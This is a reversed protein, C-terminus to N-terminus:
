AKVGLIPETITKVLFDQHDLFAPIRRFRKSCDYLTQALRILNDLRQSNFVYVETLYCGVLQILKRRLQLEYVSQYIDTEDELSGLECFDRFAEGEAKKDLGIDLIFDVFDSFPHHLCAKHLPDFFFLGDSFFINRPTLGGLCKREVIVSSLQRETEKKLKTFFKVLSSYDSHSRIAERSEPSFNKSSLNSTKLDEQVLSKYYRKPTLRELLSFYCGFLRRRQKLLFSVGVDEVSLSPPFQCIVHPTKGGLTEDSFLHLKGAAVGDCNKLLAAERKLTLSGSEFSMKLRWCTGDKLQIEYSDYDNDESIISLNEIPQGLGASRLIKEIAETNLPQNAANWDILYGRNNLLSSSM